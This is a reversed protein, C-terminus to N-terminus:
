RPKSETSNSQHAKKDMADVAFLATSFKNKRYAALSPEGVVPNEKMRRVDSNDIQSLEIGTETAVEHMEYM